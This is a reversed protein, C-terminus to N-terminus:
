LFPISQEAAVHGSSLAPSSLAAGVQAARLMGCGCPAARIAPSWASWAGSRLGLWAPQQQPQAMGPSQWASSANPVTASCNATSNLGPQPLAPPAPLPWVLYLAESRVQVLGGNSTAFLLVEGSQSGALLLAGQSHLEAACLEAPTALRLM